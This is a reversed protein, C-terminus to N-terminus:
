PAAQERNGFKDKCQSCYCFFLLSTKVQTLYEVLAVCGKEVESPSLGPPLAPYELQKRFESPLLDPFLGIVQTPDSFCFVLLVNETLNKM